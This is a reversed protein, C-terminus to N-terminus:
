LCINQVRFSTIKVLLKNEISHISERDIERGKTNENMSTGNIFDEM